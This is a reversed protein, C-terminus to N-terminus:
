KEKKKRKERARLEYGRRERVPKTVKNERQEIM